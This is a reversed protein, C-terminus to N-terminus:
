DVANGGGFRRQWESARANHWDVGSQTQEESLEVARALESLTVPGHSQELARCVKGAWLEAPQFPRNRYQDVLEALHDISCATLVRKGDARPDSVHVASSDPVLAYLEDAEHTIATGCLDCLEPLDAEDAPEEDPFDEDYM